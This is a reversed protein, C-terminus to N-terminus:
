VVRSATFAISRITRSSSLPPSRKLSRRPQVPITLTCVRLGCRGRAVVELAGAGFALPAGYGIPLTRSNSDEPPLLDIPAQDPHRGGKADGDEAVEDTTSSRGFVLLRMGKPVRGLPEPMNGMLISPRPGVSRTYM